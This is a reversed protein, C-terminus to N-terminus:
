DSGGSAESSDDHVVVVFGAKSGLDVDGSGISLNHWSLPLELDAWTFSDVNSVMEVNGPVQESSDSLVQVNSETEIWLWELSVPISCSTM